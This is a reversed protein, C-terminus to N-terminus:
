QAGNQSPGFDAYGLPRLDAPLAAPKTLGPSLFRHKEVRDAAEVVSCHHVRMEHQIRRYLEAPDRSDKM